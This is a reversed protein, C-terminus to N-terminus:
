EGDKLFSVGAPHTVARVVKVFREGRERYGTFQDFSATGPSLLITDGASAEAVAREVATEMCGCDECPVVSSWAEGMRKACCGILYVKKVFNELMEKACNVDPEKLQGGAILIIQKGGNKQAEKRASVMRIAAMMATLSTAKSDDVFDVGAGSRGIWQMRHPLPQFSQLGNAIQEDTLGLHALVAVAASASVGFVPNDFWSGAASIERRNGQPDTLVIRGTEYGARGEGPACTETGSGFRWTEVGQPVAGGDALGEPLLAIAGPRMAAFMRLKLDRYAEMTHHRNLHDAQVNLLIAADPAFTKTHEMQFSSVEVVACQVPKEALCLTCLPIGYNGAPSARVGAANLTDSLFKVISTKGKSGTVALSAGKWFRAGLELESILERGEKACATIWPHELPFAPSTVVLDAEALPLVDGTGFRFEVGQGRLERISETAKEVGQDFVTVHAGERNLLAAAAEGSVGTGLVFARKGTVTM